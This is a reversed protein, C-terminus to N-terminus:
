FLILHSVVKASRSRESEQIFEEREGNTEDKEM